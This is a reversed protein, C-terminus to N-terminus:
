ADEYFRDERSRFFWLGSALLAVGAVISVFLSASAVTASRLLAWRFGEIVGTLPNLAYAGRWGAPVLSSSYAVPTIFLLL